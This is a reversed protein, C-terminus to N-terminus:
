LVLKRVWNLHTRLLVNRLRMSFGCVETAWTPVNLLHLQWLFLSINWPYNMTSWLPINKTQNVVWSQGDSFGPLRDWFSTRVSVVVDIDFWNTEIYNSCCSTAMLLVAGESMKLMKLFHDCVRIFISLKAFEHTLLFKIFKMFRQRRYISFKKPRRKFEAFIFVCTTMDMKMDLPSTLLMNFGPRFESQPFCFEDEHM